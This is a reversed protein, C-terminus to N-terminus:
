KREGEEKLRKIEDRLQAAEEFNQLAVAKKLQEELIEIQRRTKIKVSATKPVKGTHRANGHIKRITPLLASGFTEICEVCGLHGTSLIEQLTAGCKPCHDVKDGGSFDSRDFLGSFLDVTNLFPTGLFGTYKLKSSCEGCLRYTRTIGNITQKVSVSAKNKGCHDCLM